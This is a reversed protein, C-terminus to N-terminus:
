AKASIVIELEELAGTVKETAKQHVLYVTLVTGDKGLQRSPNERINIGNDALVEDIKAFAGPVDKHHIFLPYCPKSESEVNEGANVSNTFDGDLLYDIVVKAMELATKKQAEKTAAGLHSSFVVNDLEILDSTFESGEKKPEDPYTDLGAGAIKGQKLVEYLADNDLNGGRSANIIFATPKMLALEQKGIIVTKGGTHISIYDAKKLVDEKSMYKIRSEPFNSKAYEPFADYGIVDMDFGIVLQSLRQGIRGCGIIGLTKHSLETGKFPKKKWIGKKLTHHAHPINRSVAMMLTLAIEATANTNGHPAFKVLIGNKSATDVDINDYGVGARGIVKLRGKAGAEIIDQTVKTASRVVIADFDAIEKLLADHDRKETDVEINADEFLKIGDKDMGDNLLVKM